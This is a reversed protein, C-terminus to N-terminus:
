SSAVARTAYNFAKVSFDDTPKIFPFLVTICAALISCVRVRVQVLAPLLLISCYYASVHCISATRGM